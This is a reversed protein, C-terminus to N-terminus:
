TTSNEGSIASSSSHYSTVCPPFPVPTRPDLRRGTARDTDKADFCIEIFTTKNNVLKGRSKHINALIASLALSRTTRYSEMAGKQTQLPDRAGRAQSRKLWQTFPPFYLRQFIYPTPSATQQSLTRPAPVIAVQRHHSRLAPNNRTYYPNGYPDGPIMPVVCSTCLATVFRTTLASHLLALSQNPLDVQPAMFVASQPTTLHSLRCHWSCWWTHVM